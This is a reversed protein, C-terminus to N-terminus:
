WAEQKHETIFCRKVTAKTVNSLVNVIKNPASFTFVNTKEGRNISTKLIEM